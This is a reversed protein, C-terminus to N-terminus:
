SGVTIERVNLASLDSRGLGTENGVRIYDLDNPQLGFLTAGYADAAVIDPSAIVTDLQRVDDLNGGTPGNNILIRVADIVTLTPRITRALDTLRNGFDRHILERQEIVGMLNKMGLTLRAMGHHKGIPVNILADVDFVDEYINAEALSLADPIPTGKFKFSSMKVMEGGAAEVQEAIGSIKYAEQASGGFPFDLVQVQRAGAEFCMQVLAGVVWPNTTTAYEYTHYQTCINPKIIVMGGSPVFKSMGGLADVAARVLANPAGTRAVALDAAPASTAQPQAEATQATDTSAAPIPQPQTPITTPVATNATTPSTKGARCAQLIGAGAVATGGALLYRLMQRRSIRDM